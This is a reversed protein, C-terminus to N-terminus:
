KPLYAHCHSAPLVGFSVQAAVYTIHYHQKIVAALRVCLWMLHTNEKLHFVNVDFQFGGGVSLKVAIFIKVDPLGQLMGYKHALADELGTDGLHTRNM